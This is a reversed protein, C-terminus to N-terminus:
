PLEMLGLNAVVALAIITLIPAADPGVLDMGEPLRVSGRADAPPM